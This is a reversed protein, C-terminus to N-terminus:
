GKRAPRSLVTIEFRLTRGALPHNMDIVATDGEIGVVDFMEEAGDPARGMVKRGVQRAEEPISELPFPELRDARVPGYADDPALTISRSEGSDMQAMQRELAPLMENAGVQFIRPKGDLNGGLGEGHEGFVNFRFAILEGHAHELIRELVPATEDTTDNISDNTMSTRPQM